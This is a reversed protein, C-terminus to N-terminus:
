ILISSWPQKCIYNCNHGRHRKRGCTRELTRNSRYRDRLHTTWVSESSITTSWACSARSSSSPTILLNMKGSCFSSFFITTRGYFEKKMVVNVSSFERLMIHWLQLVATVVSCCNFGAGMDTLHLRTDVQEIAGDVALKWFLIDMSRNHLTNLMSLNLHHFVKVSVIIILSCQCKNQIRFLIVDFHM